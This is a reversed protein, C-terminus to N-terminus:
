CLEPLDQMAIDRLKIKLEDALRITLAVLTLTPNVWSGTPFVSSGAVYCNALTHVRLHENVVGSRPDRHMRTGGMHHKGGLMSSPWGEDNSSSLEVLCGLGQRDITHALVDRFRDVSRWADAGLCWHVHVKPMGLRDKDSSLTVRSHRLPPSEVQLRLAYRPQPQLVARIRRSLTSAAPHRDKILDGVLSIIDTDPLRQRKAVDALAVLAQSGRSFYESRLQYDEMSIFYGGCGLLSEQTRLPESLSYAAHAARGAALARFDEILSLPPAVVTASPHWYGPTLYPHDMFYRGVNDHENGLGAARQTNSVLLLRSNEIGGAAIVFFRAQFRLAQGNNLKVTATEMQKDDKALNLSVVPANLYVDVNSSKFLATRNNKGVDLPTAFRIINGRLNQTAAPQLAGERSIWCDLDLESASIGFFANARHYYPNLDKRTIPWGSDPLTPRPEFDIGEMAICQGTWQKGSGGFSRVRSQTLSHAPAGSMQGQYFSQSPRSINDNGAELLVVRQKSGLFEAALALGAIGAGVICIDSHVCALSDCENADILM